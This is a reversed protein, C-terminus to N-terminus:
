RSVAVFADPHDRCAQLYDACFMVFNEWAGWGNPANFQEFEKKHTVLLALGKELDPVIQKAQTIGHEDPRWLCDYIGAAASMKGLNHTINRWYLPENSNSDTLYVDLSM